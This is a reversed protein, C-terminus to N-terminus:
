ALSPIRAPTVVREYSLSSDMLRKMEPKRMLSSFPPPVISKKRMKWGHALLDDYLTGYDVCCEIHLRFCEYFNGVADNFTDGSSSLDLSPCYAIYNGGERFVYFELSFRYENSDSDKASTKLIVKNAM